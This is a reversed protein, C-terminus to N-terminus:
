KKRRIARFMLTIVYGLFFGGIALATIWLALQMTTLNNFFSLFKVDRIGELTAQSTTAGGTECADICLTLGDGSGLTGAENATNCDAICQDVVESAINQTIDESVGLTVKAIVFTTIFLTVILIAWLWSSFIKFPNNTKKVM